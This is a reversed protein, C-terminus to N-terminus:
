NLHNVPWSVKNGTIVEDVGMAAQVGMADMSEQTLASNHPSVIINDLSFLPNDKSPPEVCLVDIAAGGIKHNKLADYLDEENVVKGRACNILVANNKMMSLTKKNIMETTAPLVPVHLTIFDSEKLLTDLSVSKVYKPFDKEALLADYGVVNLGLANAKEAVLQGIHGMGVVGLTKNKIETSRYQNRHNWTGEREKKDMFVLRIASAMLLAITHEAVSNCNATPTNTVQINFDKAADLDVNDYGAGHRAIVKLKKSSGLVKRTIIATRIIAGDCDKIEKCLTDEDFGSGMIVEYGRNRLYEKGADTIDQPILIKKKM